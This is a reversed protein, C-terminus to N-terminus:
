ITEAFERLSELILSDDTDFAMERGDPSSGVAYHYAGFDEPRDGIGLVEFKEKIFDRFNVAPNYPTELAFAKDIMNTYLSRIENKEDEFEAFLEEKPNLM